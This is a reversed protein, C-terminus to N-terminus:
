EGKRFGPVPQRPIDRDRLRERLKHLARNLAVRVNGPKIELVEGIQEHKLGAFFRLSIISQERAPLESLAQYLSEWDVPVEPAVFPATTEVAIARMRVAAELLQRRRLSQRLHAHIENTAIRFLWRRFDEVCIGSFDRMSVAVKLFVESTVDEAVARELLRRVSYAFILPYFHDFLQGLAAPDTRAAM